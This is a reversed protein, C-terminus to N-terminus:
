SINHPCQLLQYHNNGHNIGFFLWYLLYWFDTDTYKLSKQVQSSFETKAKIEEM